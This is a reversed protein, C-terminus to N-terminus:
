AGTNHSKGTRRNRNARQDNEDELNLESIEDLIKKLLKCSKVILRIPPEIQNFYTESVLDIMRTEEVHQLDLLADQMKTIVAIMIYKHPTNITNDCDYCWVGTLRGCCDYCTSTNMAEIYAAVDM